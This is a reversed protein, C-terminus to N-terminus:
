MMKEYTVGDLSGRYKSLFEHIATSIDLAMNEPTQNRPSFDVKITVRGILELIFVLELRYWM